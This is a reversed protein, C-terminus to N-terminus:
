ICGEAFEWLLHLLLLLLEEVGDVGKYKSSCSGNTTACSGNLDLEVLDPCSLSM